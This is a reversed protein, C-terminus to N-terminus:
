DSVEIAVASPEHERPPAPQDQVLGVASAGRMKIGHEAAGSRPPAHKTSVETSVVFGWCGLWITVYGSHKAHVLLPMPVSQFQPAEPQSDAPVNEHGQGEARDACSTCACTTGTTRRAKSIPSVGSSCRVNLIPERRRRNTARPRRPPLCKSAPTETAVATGAGTAPDIMIVQSSRTFGYLTGQAFETGIVEFGIPGIPTAAGTSTNVSYLTGSTGSDATAQNATAQFLLNGNADFALDISGEDPPVTPAGLAGVLTAQATSPDITYLDTFTAGFLVGDHRFKIALGNDTPLGTNGVTTSTASVPDVILLDQNAQIAYLVGAPSRTLDGGQLASGLVGIEAFAGTQPSLTGLESTYALAYFTLRSGGDAGSDGGSDSGSGGGSSSSTGNAVGSDTAGGNSSSFCGGVFGTAAALVAAGFLARNVIAWRLVAM